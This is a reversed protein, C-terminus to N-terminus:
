EPLGGGVPVWRASLICEPGLDDEYKTEGLDYLKSSEEQSVRAVDQEQGDGDDKAVEVAEDLDIGKNSKVHYTGFNRSVDQERQM